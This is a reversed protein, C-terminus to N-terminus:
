SRKAKYTRALYEATANNKCPIIDVILDKSDYISLIVGTGLKNNPSIIFSM